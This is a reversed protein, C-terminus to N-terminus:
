IGYSLIWIWLLTSAILTGSSCKFIIVTTLEMNHINEWFLVFCATMFIFASHQRCASKGQSDQFHSNHTLQFFSCLVLTFETALPKGWWRPFPCFTDCEAPVPLHLVKGFQLPGWKILTDWLTLIRLQTRARLNKESVGRESKWSWLLNKGRWSITSYQKQKFSFPFFM